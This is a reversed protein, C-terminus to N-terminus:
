NLHPWAKLPKKDVNRLSYALRAMATFRLM